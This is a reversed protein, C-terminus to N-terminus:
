MSIYKLLTEQKIKSTREFNSFRIGILRVKKKLKSFEQFLDLYIKLAKEKNCIPYDITRSRTYTEFNEFRIKLIITKYSIQEDILKRHIKENIEEVKSLILNFDDTDKYFTREKSISKRGEHFDKVKRTDQGNIVKWIWKGHKGFLQILKPLTLEILDGIKKIGKKYFYIKTKKGIGPIRTINKPSLFTKIADPPVICLGNPKNEDSAIKAISKSNSAGISLTIGVKSKIKEKIKKALIEIDRYSECKESVDLYAEDIGIKQFKDAYTELIEMVKKSATKYKRFNPRLYIGHPCLRYAKSIPMASHLGFRRAEYSCTSVVGRGKGEKPNAGIIVPKKRLKPNDRMEVSAFFCDLDAHLIIVKDKSPTKAELNIPIAILFM